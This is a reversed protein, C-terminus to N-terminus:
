LLSNLEVYNSAKYRRKNPKVTKQPVEENVVYELELLTHDSKGLPTGCTTGLKCGVTYLFAHM